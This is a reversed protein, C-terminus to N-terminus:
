PTCHCTNITRQNTRKFTTCIVGFLKYATLIVITIVALFVKLGQLSRLRSFCKWGPDLPRSIGGTWPGWHIDPANPSGHLGEVAVVLVTLTTTTTVVVM